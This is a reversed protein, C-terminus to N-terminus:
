TPAAEVGISIMNFDTGGTVRLNNSGCECGRALAEIMIARPPDDAWDSLDAQRGCDLCTMELPVAEFHLTAGEAQTDQSLYEFYFEVSEPVIFSMRGVQLYVDTIRQGKAHELAMDLMAQTVSMEHM